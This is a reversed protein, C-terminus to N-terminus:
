PRVLNKDVESTLGVEEELAVEVRSLLVFRGTMKWDNQAAYVNEDDALVRSMETRENGATKKSSSAQLTDQQSNFEEMLVFDRPDETNARHAKKM